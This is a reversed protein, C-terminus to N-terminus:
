HCPIAEVCVWGRFRMSAEAFADAADFALVSARKCRGDYNELVVTFKKQIAIM